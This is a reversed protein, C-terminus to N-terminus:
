PEPSEAELELRPRLALGLDWGVKAIAVDRASDQANARKVVRTGEWVTGSAYYSGGLEDVRANVIYSARLFDNMLPTECGAEPDPCEDLTARAAAEDVAPAGATRAVAKRLIRTLRVDSSGKEKGPVVRVALPPVSVTAAKPPAGDTIEEDGLDAAQASRAAGSDSSCGATLLALSWATVLCVRSGAAARLLRRRM